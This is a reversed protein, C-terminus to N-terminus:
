PLRVARIDASTLLYLVGDASFAADLLTEEVSGILDGAEADLVRLGAGNRPRLIAIRDPDAAYRVIPAPEGPLEVATRWVSMLLEGRPRLRVVHLRDGDGLVALLDGSPTAALFLGRSDLPHEDLVRGTQLDRELLVPRSGPPALAQWLVDGEPTIAMATTRAGRAAWAWVPELTEPDFALVSGSAAGQALFRGRPDLVIPVGAFGARQASDADAGPQLSTLHDGARVYVVDAAEGVVEAHAGGPIAFSESGGVSGGPALVEMSGAGGVWLRGDHAVYLTAAGRPDIALHRETTLERVPPDCAAVLALLCAGMPAAAGRSADAWGM